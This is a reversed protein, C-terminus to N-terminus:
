GQLGVTRGGLREMPEEGDSPDKQERRKWKNREKRGSKNLYLQRTVNHLHLTYSM